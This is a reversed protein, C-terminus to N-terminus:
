MEPEGLLKGLGTNAAREGWAGVDELSVFAMTSAPIRAELRWADEPAAWGAPVLAGVADGMVTEPTRRTRTMERISQQPFIPAIGTGARHMAEVHGPTALGM